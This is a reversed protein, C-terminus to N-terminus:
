LAMEVLKVQANCEVCCNGELNVGELATQLEENFETWLQVKAKEAKEKDVTGFRNLRDTYVRENWYEYGYLFWLATAFAQRNDCLFQDYKCGISVIGSLGYTNNGMAIETVPNDSIAGNVEAKCGLSECVCGCFHNLDPVELTLSDIDTSDYGIFLGLTPKYDTNVAVRNQGAQGTVTFSDLEDYVGEEIIDYVKITTNKAETLILNLSQIHIVHLNSKVYDDLESLIVTFGRYSASAATQTASTILGLNASQTVRKLKYRLSIWNTVLTHFRRLARREIDQFVQIYTPKEASAIGDISTISIGPLDNIYLGSEPESDSCGRIGIYGELCDM